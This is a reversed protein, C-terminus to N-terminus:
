ELRSWFKWGFIMCPAALFFYLIWMDANWQLTLVGHHSFLALTTGFLLFVSGTLLLAVSWLVNKFEVFSADRVAVEEEQVVSTQPVEPTEAREYTPKPTSSHTNPTPQYLPAFSQSNGDLSAPVVSVGCYPCIEAEASVNGECNWCLRKKIPKNM